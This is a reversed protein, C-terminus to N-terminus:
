LVPTGQNQNKDGEVFTPVTNSKRNSGLVSRLTTRVCNPVLSMSVFAPDHYLSRNAVHGTHKKYFIFQEAPGMLHTHPSRVHEFFYAGGVRVEFIPPTSKKFFYYVFM